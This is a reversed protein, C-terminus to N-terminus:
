QCFGLRCHKTVQHRSGKKTILSFAMTQTVSPTAASENESGDSGATQPRQVRRMPLPVDFVPKRDFKRSDLSESMMKQLERDFEAEAEPDHQEEQRTVVIDEDFDSDLQADGNALPEQSILSCNLSDTSWRVEADAEDGSSQGDDMEPVALDEDDGEGGSSSEELEEVEVHKEIEQTKYNQKVMDAFTRGAEEFNAALKWQPRVLAFSDQVIFDVDM